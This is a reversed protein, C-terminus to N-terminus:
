CAGNEFVRAALIHITDQQNSPIWDYKSPTLSVFVREQQEPQKQQCAHVHPQQSQRSGHGTDLCKNPSYWSAATDPPLLWKRVIPWVAPTHRYPWVISPHKRTGAVLTLDSVKLFSIQSCNDSKVPNSPLSTGPVVHLPLVLLKM